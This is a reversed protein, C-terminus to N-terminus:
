GSGKSLSFSRDEQQPLAFANCRTATALSEALPATYNRTGPDAWLDVLAVHMSEPLSESMPTM